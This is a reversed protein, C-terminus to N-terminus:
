GTRGADALEPDSAAQSPRRKLLRAAHRPSIQEVIGRRQIEDAIERGTWHTMPRQADAPAECALAMIQAVQEPQIRAPAGPRPLDQLRDEGSLDELSIPQLALWRRRWLRVTDVTVQLARAIESNNKGQGIALIIRARLAIQQPTQHRKVLKELGQREADSLEIPTPKPGHMRDKRKERGALM